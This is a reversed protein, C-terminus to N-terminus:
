PAIWQGNFNNEELFIARKHGKHSLYLWDIKEIQVTIITFLESMSNNLTQIVEKPDDIQQGPDYNQFYCLKSQASMKNWKEECFQNNNDIKTNGNIRIQVKDKKSYFLCAIKNNKKLDIIKKSSFNTHYRLFKNEFDFERLIVTRNNITNDGFTAISLSHYDSHRDKVGRSLSKNISEIIENVDNLNENHNM